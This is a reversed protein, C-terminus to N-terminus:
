REGSYTKLYFHAPKLPLHQFLKKYVTESIISVASGTDVETINHSNALEMSQATEFTKKFTLERQSEQELDVQGAEIFYM